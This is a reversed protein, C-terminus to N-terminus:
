ARARLWAETRALRSANMETGRFRGGLEHAIRATMGLGTCPDLVLDGPKVAAVLAARTVPEGHPPDPMTVDIDRSGFLLLANPLPKRKPGYLIRWTRRHSLGASSMASEIDTTWRLGMEVFVPACPKAHSACTRAFADLFGVWSTCPSAGRERMTHWYKQNGPGWPPDSYIVDALEGGMVINVAWSTIDGCLLRHKGISIVVAGRLSRAAM